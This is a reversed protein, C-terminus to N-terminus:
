RRRTHYMLEFSIPLANTTDKTVDFVLDGLGAVSGGIPSPLVVDSQYITSAASTVNSLIYPTTSDSAVKLRWYHNDGYARSIVTGAASADITWFWTVTGQTPSIASIVGLRVTYTSSTAGDVNAKIDSLVIEGTERHKFNTTDSFDIVVAATSTTAAAVSISYKVLNSKDDLDRLIDAHSIGIGLFMLSMFSILKKM